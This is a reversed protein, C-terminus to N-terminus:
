GEKNPKRRTNREDNATTGRQVQVTILCVAAHVDMNYKNAM